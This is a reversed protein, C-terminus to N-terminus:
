VERSLPRLVALVEPTSEIDGDWFRVLADRNLDIWAALLRLDGPSMDGALVEVAPRVSVTVFEGPKVKPGKSVKVRVDDRAFGRASIWVMFPLGTFAPPLNDMFFFDDETEAPVTLTQMKLEGSLKNEKVAASPRRYGEGM